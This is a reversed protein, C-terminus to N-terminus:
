QIRRMLFAVNSVPRLIKAFSRSLPCAFALCKLNQMSWNCFFSRQYTVTKTKRLSLRFRIVVQLDQLEGSMELKMKKKFFSCPIRFTLHLRHM